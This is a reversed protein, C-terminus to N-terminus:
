ISKRKRQIHFFNDYLRMIARNKLVQRYYIIIVSIQLIITVSYM